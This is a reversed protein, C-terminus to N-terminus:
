CGLLCNTKTMVGLCIKVIEEMTKTRFILIDLRRRRQLFYHLIQHGTDWVDYAMNVLSELAGGLLSDQYVVAFVQVYSHKTNNM